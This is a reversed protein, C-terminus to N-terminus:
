SREHKALAVFDRELGLLVMAKVGATPNLYAHQAIHMAGEM